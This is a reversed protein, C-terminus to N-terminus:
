LNVTCLPMILKVIFITTLVVNLPTIDESIVLTTTGGRFKNTLLTLKPRNVIASCLVRFLTGVIITRQLIKTRPM